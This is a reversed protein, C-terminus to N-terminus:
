LKKYTIDYSGSADKARFTFKYKDGKPNLVKIEGTDTAQLMKSFVTKKASKLELHLEGKKLSTKYHFIFSASEDLKIKFDQKGNFRDFKAYSHGPLDSGEWNNTKLQQPLLLVGCVM